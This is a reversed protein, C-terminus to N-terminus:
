NTRPTITKLFALTSEDDWGASGVHKFAIRGDPALIFTAPIGDTRFVAPPKGAIRYIPFTYPNKKVFGDIKERSEDSIALFVVGDGKVKDYLRQISPMESRCPGCWTAWFNVFVVKGQLTRADFPTGDLRELKFGYDAKEGGPFPPAPLRASPAGEAASRQASRKIVGGKLTLVLAILGGFVICSGVVAGAGFGTWFRRDFFRAQPQLPPPNVTPQLLPFEERMRM